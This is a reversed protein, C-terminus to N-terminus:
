TGSIDALRITGSTSGCETRLQKRMQRLENLDNYVFTREGVSISKAKNTVLALIAANVATLLESATPDEVSM